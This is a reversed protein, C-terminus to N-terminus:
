RNQRHRQMLQTIYRMTCQVAGLYRQQRARHSSTQALYAWGNLITLANALQALFSAPELPTHGVRGTATEQSTEFGQPNCYPEDVM